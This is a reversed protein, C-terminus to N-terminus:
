GAVPACVCVTSNGFTGPWWSLLLWPLTEVAEPLLLSVVSARLLHEMSLWRALAIGLEGGFRGPPCSDAAHKMDECCIASVVLLDPSDLCGAEATLDPRQMAKWCRGLVTQM